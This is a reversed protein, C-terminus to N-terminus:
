RVTAVQHFSVTASRPWHAPGTMTRKGVLCRSRPLRLQNSDDRGWDWVRIAGSRDSTAFRHSDEIFAIDYITDLQRSTLMSGDRVDALVINGYTDGAVICTGDPSFDVCLMNSHTPSRWTRKRNGTKSDWISLRDDASASAILTGDPSVAVMEIEREHGEMIAQRNGTNADWVAIKRDYGGSVIANGDPSFCVDMVGGTHAFFSLAPQLKTLSSLTSALLGPRENTEPQFDWVRICGDSCAAAIRKGDPAWAVDWFECVAFYTQLLEGTASRYVRVQGHSSAVAVHKGDPAGAVGWVRSGVDVMWNQKVNVSQNLFHWAFDRLDEEGTQPQHRDLLAQLRPVDGARYADSALKMDSVYLLRRSRQRLSEAIRRQASARSQERRAVLFRQDALERADNAAVAQWISVGTGVLLSAVVLATTTLAIRNRRAFKRLRYTASPPSAEVPRNHLYREIDAALASASEYRRNRDKELAKMVIWDLDGRLISKLRRSDTRPTLAREAHLTSARQSPRPPDTELIMRRIEDIDSSHLTDHDFPPTGTLLEYLLVGISYVDSRTDIDRGGLQAQEPSMYMPTGVMQSVHTFLTRETLDQSTAKAIGFDIIKVVPRGDHISVLLNGPKLDRHIVGKQHAHQIGRCADVMLRLRDEISPMESACYQTIPCGDVLEMVFYPRGQDTMGADLVRAINPHDMLALTQREAEFRAIVQKSDMGPKIVKVAVRRKIPSTQQAMFVTGMGGEGIRELLKYPGVMPQVSVDIPEQDVFGNAVTKAPRMRVVAADLLNASSEAAASLM